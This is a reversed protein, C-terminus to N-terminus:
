VITLRYVFLCPREDEKYTRKILVTQLYQAPLAKKSAILNNHPYPTLHHVWLAALDIAVGLLLRDLRTHGDHKSVRCTELWASRAHWHTSNPTPSRASARFRPAGRGDHKPGRRDSKGPPGRATTRVQALARPGGTLVARREM